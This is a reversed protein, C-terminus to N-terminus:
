GQLEKIFAPIKELTGLSCDLAGFFAFRPISEYGLFKWDSLSLPPLFLTYGSNNVM